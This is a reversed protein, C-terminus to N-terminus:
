NGCSVLISDGNGVGPVRDGPRFTSSRTEPIITYAGGCVRAARNLCRDYRNSNCTILYGSKGTPLATPRIHDAETLCGALGLLACCLLGTKISDAM